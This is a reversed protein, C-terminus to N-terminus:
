VEFWPDDVSKLILTSGPPLRKVLLRFFAKPDKEMMVSMLEDTIQEKVEESSNDIKRAVSQLLKSDNPSKTVREHDKRWEEVSAYSM